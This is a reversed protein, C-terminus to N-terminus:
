AAGLVLCVIAATLTALGALWTGVAVWVQIEQDLTM